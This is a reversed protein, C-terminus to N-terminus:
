ASPEWWRLDSTVIDMRHSSVLSPLVKVGQKVMDLNIKSITIGM